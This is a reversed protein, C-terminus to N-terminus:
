ASIYSIHILCLSVPLAGTNSLNNHNIDIISTKINVINCCNTLFIVSCDDSPVFSASGIAEVVSYTSQLLRQLKTRWTQKKVTTQNSREAISSQVTNLNIELENPQAVLTGRAM